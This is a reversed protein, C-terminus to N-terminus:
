ISERIEGGPLVEFLGSGDLEATGSATDMGASGAPVDEKVGILEDLDADNSGESIEVTLLKEFEERAVPIFIFNVADRESDAATNAMDKLIDRKIQAAKFRMNLMDKDATTVKKTSSKGRDSPHVFGGDDEALNDDIGGALQELYEIKEIEEIRQRAYISKTESKYEADDLVMARLRKDAVKCYDLAMSDSNLREYATICNRVVSRFYDPSGSDPLPLVHRKKTASTKGPM